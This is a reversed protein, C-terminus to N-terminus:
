PRGRRLWRRAAPWATWFAAAGLVRAWFAGSELELGLAAGARMDLWTPLAAAGAGVLLRAPWEVSLARHLLDRLVIAGGLGALATFFPLSSVSTRLFALLLTLLVARRWAFPAPVPIAGFALLLWVDPLLAGGPAARLAPALATALLAIPLLLRWRPTGSM